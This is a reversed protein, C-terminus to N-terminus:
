LLIKATKETWLIWGAVTVAISWGFDIAPIVDRAFFSPAQEILSVSIMGLVLAINYMTWFVFSSPGLHHFFEAYIILAFSIRVLDPKSILVSLSSIAIALFSFISRWYTEHSSYTWRAGLLFFVLFRRRKIHGRIATFPSRWHPPFFFSPFSHSLRSFSSTKLAIQM